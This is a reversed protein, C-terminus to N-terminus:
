SNFNKDSQRGEMYYAAVDKGDLDQVIIAGDFRQAQLNNTTVDAIKGKFIKSPVYNVIYCEKGLGVKPKNIVVLRQKGLHEFTEYQSLGAVKGDVAFPIEVVSGDAVAGEYFPQISKFKFYKPIFDMYANFFGKTVTISQVKETTAGGLLSNSSAFEKDKRCAFMVMMCAVCLTIIKTTKFSLSSTILKNLYHFM